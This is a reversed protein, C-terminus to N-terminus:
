AVAAGAALGELMDMDHADFQEGEAKDLLELCGILTGQNDIIPISILTIFEFAEQMELSIEPDNLADNSIYPILNGNMWGPISQGPKFAYHIPKWNGDKYYSDFLMQGDELMGTAGATANVLKLGYEVLTESIVPLSLEHNLQHNAKVLLRLQQELYAVRNESSDSEM